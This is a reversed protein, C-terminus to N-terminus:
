LLESEILNYRGFIQAIHPTFNFQKMWVQNYYKYVSRGIVRELGIYIQSLRLLFFVRM